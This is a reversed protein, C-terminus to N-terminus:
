LSSIVGHLKLSEFCHLFIIMMLYTRYAKLKIVKSTRQKLICKENKTSATGKLSGGKDEATVM